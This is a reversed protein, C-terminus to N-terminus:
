YCSCCKIVVRLAGKISMCLERYEVERFTQIRLIYVYTYNFISSFLRFYDWLPTILYYKM